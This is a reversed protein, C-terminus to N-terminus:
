KFNTLDYENVIRGDDLRYRREGYEIRRQQIKYWNQRTRDMVWEEPAFRWAESTKQNKL